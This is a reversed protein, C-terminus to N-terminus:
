RIVFYLLEFAVIYSFIFLLEFLLGLNGSDWFM